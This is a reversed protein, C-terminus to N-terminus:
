PPWRLAKSLSIRRAREYERLALPDAALGRRTDRMANSIVENALRHECRFSYAVAIAYNADVDAHRVGSLVSGAFLVSGFDSGGALMLQAVVSRGLPRQRAGELALRGNRALMAKTPSDDAVIGEPVAIARVRQDCRRWSKAADRVTATALCAAVFHDLEWRPLDTTALDSGYLIQAWRDIDGLFTALEAHRGEPVARMAWHRPSPGTGHSHGQEHKDHHSRLLRIVDALSQWFATRHFSLYPGRWDISSGRPSEDVEEPWSRLWSDDGHTAVYTLLRTLWTRAKADEECRDSEDGAPRRAAARVVASWLAFKWPTERFVAAISRRIESIERQAEDVGASLWAGALRNAAFTRRTDPRVQEDEIDFRALDHLQVQRDKAAQGFRDVLVDNGIESLREVLTTVFPGIDGPGISERDISRRLCKRDERRWWRYLSTSRGPIIESDKERTKWGSDHLCRRVVEAVPKPGVKSLNVYLNSASTPRIPQGCKHGEIAGWVTDVLRLLGGSSRAMLYMDDAFRVVAGRFDGRTRGLYDFVVKDARHLVVNLLLGSIALGTPLGKNKPPLNARADHPIWALDPIDGCDVDVLGLATILQLALKVRLKEETLEEMLVRPYGDLLSGLVTATLDIGRANALSHYTVYPTKVLDVLADSLSALDVSPYALQVDLSAWYARYSADGHEADSTWWNKHCWPPLSASDYDTPHQVRGAYGKERIPTATMRSVTWSAVRRFLGYSRRYPLYTRHTLFPYGRQEWRPATDRTDWALPRYLRNGFVFPLFRSDLLPGLLVLYTMFAVQDKVTPIVYHRLCAGRKPYPLQQWTSPRWQDSRIESALQRVAAEPHVRWRSLEPQPAINGSRYWQDVRLWAAWVVLPHSLMRKALSNWRAAM